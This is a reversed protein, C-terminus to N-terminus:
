VILQRLERKAEEVAQHLRHLADFQVVRGPADIARANVAMLVEFLGDIDIFPTEARAFAEIEAVVRGAEDPVALPGLSAALQHVEPDHTEDDTDEGESPEEEEEDEYETVESAEYGAGQHATDAEESSGSGVSDCQSSTDYHSEYEPPPTEEEPSLTRGQRRAREAEGDNGVSPYGCQWCLCSGAGHPSEGGPNEGRLEQPDWRRQEAVISVDWARAHMGRRGDPHDSLPCALRQRGDGARRSHDDPAWRRGEAGPGRVSGPYARGEDTAWPAAAGPPHSQPDADLFLPRGHQPCLSITASEHRWLPSGHHVPYM